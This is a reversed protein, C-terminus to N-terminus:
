ELEKLEKSTLQVTEDDIVVFGSKAKGNEFVIQVALEGDQAFTRQTGDLKGEKYNLENHINGDDYFNQLTGHLQGGKFFANYLVRGDESFFRGEGDPLGHKSEIQMRVNGNPYYVKYLGNIPKEEVNYVVGHVVTTNNENYIEDKDSEGCGCLLCLIFLITSFNKM